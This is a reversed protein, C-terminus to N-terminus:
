RGTSTREEFRAGRLMNTLSYNGEHCAFEFLEEGTRTMPLRVTWPATFYTPNDVTFEYVLTKPGVLAFREVFRLNEDFRIALRLQRPFGATEVVLSDGDWHGRAEGTWTRIAPSRRPGGTLAIVRTEHYKEQVIAIYDPAQTIRILNADPAGALYPPGSASRLCRESLSSDAHSDFRGRSVARQRQRAQAEATLPPIRGDPPDVVLSSPARGAIIALGGREMWFENIPPGNLGGMGNQDGQGGEAARLAQREFAKAEEDTMFPRGAFRDPRQLPTVTALHWVGEFDPRGDATRAIGSVPWGATQAHAVPAAAGVALLGLWIVSRIRSRRV